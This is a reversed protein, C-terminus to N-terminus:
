LTRHILPQTKGVSRMDAVCVPIFSPDPQLRLVLVPSVAGPTM